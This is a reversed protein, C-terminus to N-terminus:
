KADSTNDPRTETTKNWNSSCWRLIIISIVALPLISLEIWWMNIENIKGSIQVGGAVADLFTFILFGAIILKPKRNAVGLLVLARSSAHCTIAIVREVPGLLWFLPTSAAIGEVAQQIKETGPLGALVTIMAILSALGLLLAETGGAGMGIGTARDANKGLQRWILVALLTLGIEFFGSQVGAFLGGIILYSTFSLKAKFYGFIINNSLVACIIKLAVAAAWLAAGAWFWKFELKAARRWYIVAGSGVAMMGFANIISLAINDM